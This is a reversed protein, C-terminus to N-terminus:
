PLEEPFIHRGDEGLPLPKVWLMASLPLAAYLHPFLDGGRSPEHKLAEGLAEGSVAVLLLDAEGAFYLRATEKVQAGTSFHIYGDRTDIPAGTFVGKEEAERWLSSPCLKYIVPM